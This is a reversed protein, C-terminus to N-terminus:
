DRDKGQEKDPNDKSENGKGPNNDKNENEKSPKEDNEKALNSKEKNDDSEIVSPKDKLDDTKSDNKPKDKDDKVNPPNSKKVNVKITDKDNNQNKDPLKDNSKNVKLMDDHEKKDMNDVEITANIDIKQVASEALRVLGEQSINVNKSNLKVLTIEINNEGTDKLYGLTKAGAMVKQLATEVDLNMLQLEKILISADNNLPIVESVKNYRNIGIELNPNISVDVFAVTAYAQKFYTFPILLLLIAAAIGAYKFMNNKSKYIESIIEEGPSLSYAPKKVKVFNGDETMVVVNYQTVEMVIGKIMIGM